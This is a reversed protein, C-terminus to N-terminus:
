RRISIDATSNQRIFELIAEYLAEAVQQRFKKTRLLKEERKNSLFASEVLIAPMSAGVLVYFGAQDVGRDKLGTSLRMKAQVMGALSQSEKAFESQAMALLIYNEETLDQYQNKSEEYKIVANERLAVDMANQNRAPKLFYTEVGGANGKKVSNCHISVFLKGGQKNALATRQNLGIFRDDSRTLVVKLKTNKELLTKLRLAIALTVEKEQLGTVGIAGPDRGGHGPDIVVCDIKWKKQEQELIRGLEEFAVELTDDEPPESLRDLIRTVLSLHIEHTTEDQRVSHSVLPGTLHWAVQTSGAFEQVTVRDVLGGPPVKELAERRVRVGLLTLYLTGDRLVPNSLAVPRTCGMRVLTGNDKAEYRVTFVEESCPSLRLTRAARDYVMQAPYLAALLDTVSELPAWFRGERFLTEGPLQRIEEGVIVFVNDATWKVPTPGIECQFKRRETNTYSKLNLATALGNLDLYLLKGCQRLEAHVPPAGAQPPTISLHDAGSAAAPLAALTLLLLVFYPRRSHSSIAIPM